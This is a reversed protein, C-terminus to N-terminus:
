KWQILGAEQCANLYDDVLDIALARSPQSRMGYKELAASGM